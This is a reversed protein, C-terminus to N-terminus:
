FEPQHNRGAEDRRFVTGLEYLDGFGAALLRKHFYEPSTRLWGAPSETAVGEIHVDTVGSETLLPTQIEVVGRAAFFARIRGLIRARHQLSEASATPRWATMTESEGSRTPRPAFRLRRRACGRDALVAAACGHAWPSNRRIR